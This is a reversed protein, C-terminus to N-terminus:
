YYWQLRVLWMRTNGALGNRDLDADGYSLGAKWQPSIWWNAGYHWKRLVGGDILGDRLDLRSYRTVIEFAGHRSNPTIPGSTGAQRLYPRSEGTIVWSALVYSGSFRPDGNEPSRARADIHEAVLLFPGRDWAIEIGIEAVFDGSFEGTDIYRDAVNSEPKGSMQFFDSDPGARRVSLGVHLYDLNDPTVSVLGTMRAVYDDANDSFTANTELWDNFWGAAWTMRDGAMQGSAKIGINRTVFFPSLIREQQPNLISLGAIEYAFPQKQKGIDIRVPGVPLRLRLDYLQFTDDKRTRKEQYDVAFFMEWAYSSKSRLALGLRAARLDRSDDQLGVQTISSADQEFFTYDAVIAIIPKLWFRESEYVLAEGPLDALVYDLAPEEAAQVARTMALLTVVLFLLQYCATAPRNM